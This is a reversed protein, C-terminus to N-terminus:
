VKQFGLRLSKLITKWNKVSNGVSKLILVPSKHCFSFGSQTKINKLVSSLEKFKTGKFYYCFEM